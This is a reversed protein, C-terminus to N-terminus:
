LRELLKRFRPHDRLSRLDPDQEVWGRHGFGRAIVQELLDLAEDASGVIAYVCAVNYIVSPEEPDIDVARDAWALAEAREGLSALTTAGFSLARADGPNLELHKRILELASHGASEADAWRDAEKYVLGLMSSPLYEEPQLRCAEELLDAARQLEGRGFCARGYYYHADFLQPDLRIATEFHDRAVDFEGKLSVTLGRAVHAEALEPDLELARSSSEDARRLNAKSHDWWMYLMSCAEAIGAYALAFRPDIEIARKFMGVALEYSKGRQYFFQTGRLYYDYAELEGTPMRSIAREEEDTLVVRLAHMINRAIEDQIAFVDRPDRDYHESWLQYGDAVNVLRATIRLSGAAKRVSGELISQVNLQKGIARVDVERGKFAFSSTRSVVRLAEIRSLATIIETAMGDAFYDTEADPSLNAFPLVAVSPVDTSEAGGMMQAVRRLEALIEASSPYRAERDKNLCRSIIRVLEPPAAPNLEQVPRPSGRVTATFIGRDSEGLFAPEGAVMEYLVVGFSFVDSRADVPAGAIQEPSMYGPTGLVRQEGAVSVDRGFSRAIGFDLIKIRGGSTLMVNRPKLDHHVIRREHAAALGEAMQIAMSLVEDLPLPEPRLLLERLTRGEVFEMAIYCMEKVEGLEYVTAVNPHNLQAAMRAEQEFRRLLEGTAWEPSLVKIAVRRDLRPDHALYVVGMGGRGLEREITYQAVRAPVSDSLLTTPKESERPEPGVADDQGSKPEADEHEAPSWVM